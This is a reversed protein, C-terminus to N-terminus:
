NEQTEGVCRKRQLLPMAKVVGVAKESLGEKAAKKTQWREESTITKDGVKVNGGFGM